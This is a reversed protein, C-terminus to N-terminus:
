AAFGGEKRGMAQTWVAICYFSPSYRADFLIFAPGCSPAWSARFWCWRLGANRGSRVESGIAWQGAQGRIMAASGYRDLPADM